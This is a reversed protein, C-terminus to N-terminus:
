QEFKKILEKVDTELKGSGKAIRKIRSDNILKHNEREQNTMSSIIIRMKKMEDEAPSLDGMNRMANGMGPIMKLINGMSGLKKMSDMQTIFDNLTFKNQELRKLMSNAEDESIADQAKEVLTLVDGMDLIRKALRDPHFLELDTLKEGASIFTIPVQTAYRISLAAGGKSDSDMKSLVVGTVGIQEHFSKAVNVSEQGTMADAVLLVECDGVNKKVTALEGMLEENVQLRGATDIVVVKKGLKKAEALGAQVIDNVSQSTDSDFYEVDLAHAHKLLQDKAAPRFNDAPILYIDKKAKNKLYNAYKGVFTTKGAGNLGVVMVVFPSKSEYNYDKNEEGMLSTLEDHMIKVFQEGPEVGRLVKEGLAKEKVKAIFDKVVKFHVDAELLATRVEGLTEEINSESIKGKGRIHKFADNIKHSLTDFM